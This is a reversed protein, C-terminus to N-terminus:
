EHRVIMEVRDDGQRVTRSPRSVIIRGEAVEVTVELEEHARRRRSRHRTVGVDRHGGAVVRSQRDPDGEDAAAPGFRLQKAKGEVVLLRRVNTDWRLEDRRDAVSQEGTDWVRRSLRQGPPLLRAVSLAIEDHAEPLAMDRLCRLGAM